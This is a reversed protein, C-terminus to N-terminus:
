RRKKPCIAEWLRALSIYFSWIRRHAGTHLVTEIPITVSGLWIGLQERSRGRLIFQYPYSSRACDYRDRNADHLAIVGGPALITRGKRLCESRARGDVLIFDYQALEGASEVYQGFEDQSGIEGLEASNRKNPPVHVVTVQSDRCLASVTRAWEPDHEIALWRAGPPLFRPFILTSYGAGWELCRKPQLNLLLDKIVDAEELLMWPFPRRRGTIVVYVVDIARHVLKRLIQVPLSLYVSRFYM